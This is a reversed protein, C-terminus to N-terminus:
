AIQPSQARPSLFPKALEKCYEQLGSGRVVIHPNLVPQGNAYAVEDPLYTLLDQVGSDIPNGINEVGITSILWSNLNLWIGLATEPFVCGFMSITLFCTDGLSTCFYNIAKDWMVPWRWYVAGELVGVVLSFVGRAFHFSGLGFIAQSAESFGMRIVTTRCIFKRSFFSLERPDEIKQKERNICTDKAVNWLCVNSISYFTQNALREM